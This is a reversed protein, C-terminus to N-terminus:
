KVLLRVTGKYNGGLRMINAAFAADMNDRDSKEKALLQRVDM